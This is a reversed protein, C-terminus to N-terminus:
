HLAAKGGQSNGAIEEQGQAGCEGLLGEGM